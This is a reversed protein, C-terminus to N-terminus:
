YRAVAGRLAAAARPLDGGRGPGAGGHRRDPHSRRGRRDVRDGRAGAPRAAGRRVGLGRPEGPLRDVPRARRRAATALVPQARVRRDRPDRAGGPGGVRALRARPAAAPLRGGARGARPAGARPRPAPRRIVGDRGLALAARARRASVAGHAPRRLRAARHEGSRAARRHEAGARAGRAGVASGRRRQQDRRRGGLPRPDPRLLVRPARSGGRPARRHAAARREHRDVAGRRRPAGRRHRPEGAARRRRRRRRGRRGRGDDGRPGRAARSRHRGAGAGARGLRADLSRAARDGVRGVLGGALPGDASAARAGQPGVWRRAAAHVQPECERFWVLKALPSMPHLPTGTRDHLDPHEARLRDAQAAARTDAWTLLPGLPKDHEDLAVLGHMATSCAVAGPGAKELVQMAADVVVAPDQEGPAFRPYTVEAHGATAGTADFGTAKVSTTGVDLGLVNM